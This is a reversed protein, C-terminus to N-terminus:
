RTADHFARPAIKCFLFNLRRNLGVVPRLVGAVFIAILALFVKWRAAPEHISCVFLARQFRDKEIRRASEKM